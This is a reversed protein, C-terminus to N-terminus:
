RAGGAALRARLEDNERQLDALKQARTPPVPVPTFIRVSVPGRLFQAVHEGRLNTGRGEFVTSATAGLAAAVADVARVMLEHKTTRYEGVSLHVSRLQATDTGALTAIQEAMRHLEAAIRAYHDSQAPTTVLDTM